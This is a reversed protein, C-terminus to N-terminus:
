ETLLYIYIDFYIIVFLVVDSQPEDVFLFWLRGTFNIQFENKYNM